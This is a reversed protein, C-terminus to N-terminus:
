WDYRVDYTLTQVEDPALTLAWEVTNADLKTYPASSSTITWNSWRYLRERVLVTAPKAKRNRIEFRISETLIRRLSDFSYDTQTHSGIVDFAQGVRVLVRENRPTHDVLDEGIFKLTGDADDRKYARVRGRPLPMGLISEQDNIFRIFVDVTTDSFAGISRDAFPESFGRGYRRLDLPVTPDYVLVKEVPVGSATPFLMIQQTANQPITTPRPLTYLHYEFFTKEEFGLKENM